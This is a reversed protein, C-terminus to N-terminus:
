PFKTAVEQNRDREIRTAVIDVEWLGEGVQRPDSVAFFRVSSKIRGQLVGPSIKETV